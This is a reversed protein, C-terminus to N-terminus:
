IIKGKKTYKSKLIKSGKKGEYIVLDYDQIAFMSLGINELSMKDISSNKTDCNMDEDDLILLKINAKKLLKGGKRIFFGL